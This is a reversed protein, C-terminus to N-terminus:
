RTVTWQNTVFCAIVNHLLGAVHQFHDNGAVINSWRLYINSTSGIEM